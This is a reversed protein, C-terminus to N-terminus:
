TLHPWPKSCTQERFVHLIKDKVLSLVVSLHCTSHPSLEARLSDIDYSDGENSPKEFTLTVVVFNHETADL